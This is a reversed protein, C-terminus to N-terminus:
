GARDSKELFPRSPLREGAAGPPPAVRYGGGSSIVWTRWKGANPEVQGTRQTGADNGAAWLPACLTVSTLMLLLRRTIMLM